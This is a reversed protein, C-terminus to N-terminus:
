GVWADASGEDAGGCERERELMRRTRELSQEFMGAAETDRGASHLLQGLKSCARAALRELRVCRQAHRRQAAAPAWHGWAHM